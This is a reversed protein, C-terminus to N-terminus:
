GQAGGIAFFCLLNVDFDCAYIHARELVRLTQCAWRSSCLIAFCLFGSTVTRTRVGLFTSSCSKLLCRFKPLRSATISLVARHHQMRSLGAGCAHELAQMSMPQVPMATAPMSGSATPAMPPPMSPPPPPMAPTGPFRPSKMNRVICSASRLHRLQKVHSM